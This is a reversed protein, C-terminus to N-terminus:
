ECFVGYTLLKQDQGKRFNMMDKWAYKILTNRWYFDTTFVQKEVSTLSGALDEYMIDRLLGKNQEMLQVYMQLGIECYLQFLECFSSDVKGNSLWSCIWKAWCNKSCVSKCASQYGIIRIIDRLIALPPGDKEDQTRWLLNKLGALEEQSWHLPGEVHDFRIDFRKLGMSWAEEYVELLHNPKVRIHIRYRGFRQALQSQMQKLGPIEDLSHDIDCQIMLYVDFRNLGQLLKENEFDEPRLVAVRERDQDSFALEQLEQVSLHNVNNLWNEQPQTFSGNNRNGNETNSYSLDGTVLAEEIGQLVRIVDEESYRGNLGSCLETNTTNPLLTIVDYYLENVPFIDLKETELAYYKGQCTFGHLNLQAPLHLM